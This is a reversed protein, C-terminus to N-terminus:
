SSLEVASVAGLLTRRTRQHQEYRELADILSDVASRREYLRALARRRNSVQPPPVHFRRDHATRTATQSEM